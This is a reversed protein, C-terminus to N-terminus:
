PLRLKFFSAPQSADIPIANSFAGKGDRTGCRNTRWNIPASLDTTTLWTYGANPTGGTGTLILNGSSVWSTALTPASFTIPAKTLRVSDFNAQITGAGIASSAITLDGSVSAGTVYTVSYDRWTNQTVPLAGGSALVTGNNKNGNMEVANPNALDPSDFELWAANERVFDM